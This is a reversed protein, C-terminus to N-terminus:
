EPPGSLMTELDSILVPVDDQVVEWLRNRNITFFGHVLQNRMSIIESWSIQPHQIRIGETVQSAAEGVIEVVKVLAYFFMLDDDLSARTRGQTFSRSVRAAHLMHRLFFTDDRRL